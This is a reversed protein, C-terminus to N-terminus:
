HSEDNKGAPDKEEAESFVAAAALSARAVAKSAEIAQKEEGGSALCDKAALTCEQLVFNVYDSSLIM